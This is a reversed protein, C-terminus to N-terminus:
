ISPYQKTERVGNISQKSDSSLNSIETITPPWLDRHEALQSTKVPESIWLLLLIISAHDGWTQIALEVTQYEFLGRRSQRQPKQLEEERVGM